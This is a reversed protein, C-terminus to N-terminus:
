DKKKEREKRDKLVVQNKGFVSTAKLRIHDEGDVYEPSYWITSGIGAVARAGLYTKGFAASLEVKMPYGSPIIVKGDSFIINAEVTGDKMHETINRLDIIGTGFVISYDHKGHTYTLNSSGMIVTEQDKYPFPKTWGGTIIRIGAYIILLGLLIRFFPFSIGFVSKLIISMGFLIILLGWVLGCSLM